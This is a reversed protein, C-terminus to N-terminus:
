GPAAPWRGDAKAADVERQGAPRMRGAAILRKAREVNLASWPSRSRRPTFRQVRSIEDHRRTQSDIWGVCLACEVAEAYSMGRVPANKNLLRVWAESTSDHHEDLWAEWDAATAFELSHASRDAADQPM